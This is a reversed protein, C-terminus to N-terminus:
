SRDRPSPSTYLLCGYPNDLAAQISSSFVVPTNRKEKGLIDVITQTLQANGAEFEEPREPRNVGALHFIIDADKLHGALDDLGNKIDFTMIEVDERRRLGQILNKGIFGNSGTVLVTKM